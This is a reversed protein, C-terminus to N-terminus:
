GARRPGFRAPEELAERQAELLDRVSIPERGTLKGFDQSSGSFSGDAIAVQVSLVRGARARTVASEVLRQRAVEPEVPVYKVPRGTLNGVLAAVEAVGMESPGGIEFIRSAEDTSVAAAVAAWACDDRTVWSVTGTGTAAVMAHTSSARKLDLVEFLSEAYLNNRLISWSLGSQAIAIETRRLQKSRPFTSRDAHWASTFVVHKVGARRAAAIAAAHQEAGRAPSDTSVLVMREAGEFAHELGSPVDFDARRVVAGRRSLDTIRAPYRTTTIVRPAGSDLLLEVIRRGLRGSAGTVVIAPIRDM